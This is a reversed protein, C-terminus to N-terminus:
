APARVTLRNNVSRVGDVGQTVKVALDMQDQTDASGTLSVAGSVVKVYIHTPDLGNTRALARHIKKALVRNAMKAAKASSATTTAPSAMADSGQANAHLACVIVAIGGVAKMINMSKM